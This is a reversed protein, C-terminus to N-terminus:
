NRCFLMNNANSRIGVTQNINPRSKKLKIEYKKLPFISPPAAATEVSFADSDAADAEYVYQTLSNVWSAAGRGTGLFSLTSSKDLWELGVWRPETHFRTDM